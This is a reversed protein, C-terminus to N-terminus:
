GTSRLRVVFWESREASSQRTPMSDDLSQLYENLADLELKVNGRDTPFEAARKEWLAVEKTSYKVDPEAERVVEPLQRAKSVWWIM